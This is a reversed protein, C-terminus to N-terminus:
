VIGGKKLWSLRFYILYFRINNANPYFFFRYNCRGNKIRANKMEITIKSADVQTQNEFPSLVQGCEGCRIQDHVFSVCLSSVFFDLCATLGIQNEVFFWVCVFFFVVFIFSRKIIDYWEIGDFICLRRSSILYM